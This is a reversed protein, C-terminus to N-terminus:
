DGDGLAPLYDIFWTAFEDISPSGISFRSVARAIMIAAQGRVFIMERPLQPTPHKLWDRETNLSSIWEKSNIDAVKPSDRLKEFLSTRAPGELMGEVAGALTIAIDFDGNKLFNIAADIHREKSIQLRAKPVDMSNEAMERFSWGLFRYRNEPLREM